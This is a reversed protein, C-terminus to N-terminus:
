TSSIPDAGAVSRDAGAWEELLWDWAEPEVPFFAHNGEAVRATQMKVLAREVVFATRRPQLDGASFLGSLQGLVAQPQVDLARINVLALFGVRGALGRVSRSFIGALRAMFNHM